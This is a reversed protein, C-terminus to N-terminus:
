VPPSPGAAQQVSAAAAAAALRRCDNWHQPWDQKRCAPSCYRAVWCGGCRVGKRGAVLGEASPGSLNTCHTRSCGVLQMRFWCASQVQAATLLVDDLIGVMEEETGDASSKASEAAADAGRDQGAVLGAMGAKGDSGARVGGMVKNLELLGTCLSGLSISTLNTFCVIRAADSAHEDAGHQQQVSPQEKQQQQKRQQQQPVQQQQQQGSSQEQQGPWDSQGSLRLLETMAVEACQAALRQGAAALGLAGLRDAGPQQLQHAALRMM